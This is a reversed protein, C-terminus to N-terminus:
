IKYSIFLANDIVQDVSFDLGLIVCLSNNIGRQGIFDLDHIFQCVGDNLFDCFRLSFYYVLMLLMRPGYSFYVKCLELGQKFDVYVYGLKLEQNFALMPLNIRGVLYYFCFSFYVNLNEMILFLEFMILFLEFILCINFILYFYM